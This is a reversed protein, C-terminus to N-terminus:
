EMIGDEPAWPLVSDEIAWRNYEVKSVINKLSQRIEDDDMDSADKAKHPYVCTDDYAAWFIRKNPLSEIISHGLVRGPQHGICKNLGNQRCIACRPKPKGRKDFDTMIIITNFYRDLIDIYWPSMYGGLLAVVNPYGAQHVRMADFSAETIIVTDGERKARHINWPIERKPLGKSNKFQKDIISRGVLGIPRGKPDHMPVTVMDPHHKNAKSFGIEFHKLTDDEFGRGHMYALGPSNWLDDHLRSLVEQPFDPIETPEDIKAKIREAYSTGTETGAKAIVRATQFVNKKLLPRILDELKGSRGCSANFCTWLGKAKDIAFAPSYTNNHFPCLCLFHTGTESVIEVQCQNLISEIQADYYVESAQWVDARGYGM